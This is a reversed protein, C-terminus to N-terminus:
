YFIRFAVVLFLRRPSGTQPWNHKWNCEFNMTHFNRQKLVLSYNTYHVSILAKKTKWKNHYKKRSCLPYKELCSCLAVLCMSSKEAIIKSNQIEFCIFWIYTLCFNTHYNYCFVTGYNVVKGIQFRTCYVFLRNIASMFRHSWKPKSRKAAAKVYEM